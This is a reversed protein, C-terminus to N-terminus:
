IKIGSSTKDSLKRPKWKSVVVPGNQSLMIKSSWTSSSVPASSTEAPKSTIKSHTKFKEVLTKIDVIVRQDSKLELRSLHEKIVNQLQHSSLSAYIKWIKNLFDSIENDFRIPFDALLGSTHLKAINPEFCISHSHVFLSPMLLIDPHTSLYHFQALFLLHQLKEHELVQGENRAKNLIWAAVELSSNTASTQM